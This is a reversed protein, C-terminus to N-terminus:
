SRRKEALAMVVAALVGLVGGAVLGASVQGVFLGVVPGLVLGAAILCGGGRPAPPPPTVPDTQDVSM